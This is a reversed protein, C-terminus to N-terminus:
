IVGRNEQMQSARIVEEELTFMPTNELGTKSLRIKLEAMKRGVWSRYMQVIKEAVLLERNNQTVLEQYEVKAKADSDSLIKGSSEIDNYIKLFKKLENNADKLRKVKVKAEKLRMKAANRTNFSNLFVRTLVGVEDRNFRKKSEIEADALAKSENSKQVNVLEWMKAKYTNPKPKSDSTNNSRRERNERSVKEGKLNHNYERVLYDMTEIFKEPENEKLNNLNETLETLQPQEKAWLIAKRWQKQKPNGSM